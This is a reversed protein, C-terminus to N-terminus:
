PRPPAGPAAPTGPTATGQPAAAPTAPPAAAAPTNRSTLWTQYDAPEHVVLTGRMRTHGVGCLEACGIPYEGAQTAQFWVLIEMGPVADQKLRMQPLFFSHIVDQSTLVVKIPRDVPVDLRNRVTFDDSGGFQGDRGSYTVNWEFQKAAVKVEMAGGPINAPDKINAWIGRSALGIWMVIVFPVATWIVEAAVNGHIYAAKHGERHRYRLVFGLLLVETIVFVIGTIVLIAYYMRDIEAAFTSYAAPMLWSWNM